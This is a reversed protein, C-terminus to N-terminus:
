ASLKSFDAFADFLGAVRMLLALRNRRVEADEAMVMVDQFFLDVPGGLTAVHALAEDTRGRSLEAQVQAQVARCAALLGAESPHAFLGERVEGGATDGSKRIINVVRKFAAAIPEFDPKRRLRQLAEARRWASPVDTLGAGLVAAVTDKDLGDETMLHALRSELFACVKATTDTDAAAGFRALGEAVIEPLALTWGRARLIQLIGILGVTWVVTRLWPIGAVYIVAYAVRAYFFLQAGLVTAPNSIDAAAAALVVAAFPLLGELMNRYARQARGVWAQGEVPVERNGALTAMPFQTM